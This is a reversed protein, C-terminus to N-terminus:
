FKILKPRDLLRSSVSSFVKTVEDGVKILLGLKKMLVDFSTILKQQNSVANATNTVADSVTAVLPQSLKQASTQAQEVVTGAVASTLYQTVRISLQAVSPNGRENFLSL